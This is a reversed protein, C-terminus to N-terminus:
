ILRLRPFVMRMFNISLVLVIPGIIIGSLGFTMPGLIYALFMLSDDIGRSSIKARILWSPIFDVLILSFIFFSGLFIANEMIGSGLYASALLLIMAPIWVLSVGVGPILSSIGCLVGILIPYPIIIDKAIFINIFTYVIVGNAAVILATLMNGYFVGEFDKDVSAMFDKVLQRDNNAVNRNIWERFRSGETIFLFTLTLVLIIRVIRDFIDALLGLGMDFFNKIDANDSLLLMIDGPSFGSIVDRYQILADNISRRQEPGLNQALSLIESSAVSVLYMLFLSLPIIILIATLAVCISKNSVYRSVRLYLPRITYYLFVSFVLTDLFPMLMLYVPIACTLGFLVWKLRQM